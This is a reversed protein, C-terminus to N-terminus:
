CAPSHSVYLGTRTSNPNSAIMFM